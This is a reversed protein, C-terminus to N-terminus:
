APYETKHNCCSCPVAEAESFYFDLIRHQQDVVAKSPLRWMIQPKPEGTASCNLLLKDGFNVENRKQSAVEIRPSTVREEMT